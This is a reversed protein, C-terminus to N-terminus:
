GNSLKSLRAGFGIPRSADERKRDCVRELARILWETNQGTGRIEAQQSVKLFDGPAINDPLFVNEPLDQKFYNHFAERYQHPLLGKFCIDFTFRRLAAKDIDEMLNTTLGIPYPHRKQMLTLMENTQTKEWSNKAMRRDALLSDAEDFILFKKEDAAQEFKMRMNAETEGIRSDAVSSYPVLMAEMGMRHALYVMYESKGAGSVGYACISFRKHGGAVIQETLEHLNEDANVLKLDYNEVPKPAKFEEPTAVLRGINRLGLALNAYFKEGAADAGKEQALAASRITQDFFAPPVANDHALTQIQHETLEKGYRKLTRLIVRQRVEANPTQIEFAFSFRRLVAPDFREINNTTWLCPVTNHNLLNNTAAKSMQFASFKGSRAEIPASGLIDEMEDFMTLAPQQRRELMNEVLRKDAIRAAPSTAHPRRNEESFDEDSEQDKEGISYLPVGLSAALARFFETKGVGTGGYALLNIGKEGTKFAGQVISRAYEAETRIHPFDAMETIAAEPKGLLSEAAAAVDFEENDIRDLIKQHLHYPMKDIVPEGDFDRTMLYVLGNKMLPSSFKMRSQITKKEEGLLAAMMDLASPKKGAIVSFPGVFQELAGNSSLFILETIKRDLPEFEMHTFFKDLFSYREDSAKDGFREVVRALYDDMNKIDDETLRTSRTSETKRKKPTAAPKSAEAEPADEEPKAPKTPFDYIIGFEGCYNELTEALTLMRSANKRWAKSVNLFYSAVLKMEYDTNEM